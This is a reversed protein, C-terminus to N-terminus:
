YGKAEPRDATADHRAVEFLSLSNGYLEPTHSTTHQEKAEEKWSGSGVVPKYSCCTMNWTLLKIDAKKYRAERKSAFVVSRKPPFTLFSHCPHVNMGVHM